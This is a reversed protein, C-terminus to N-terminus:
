CGRGGGGSGVKKGCYNNHFESDSLIVTCKKGISFGGGEGQPNDKIEEGTVSGNVTCRNFELTPMDEGSAVSVAGGKRAVGNGVFATDNVECNKALSDFSGYCM